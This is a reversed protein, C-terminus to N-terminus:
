QGKIEAFDFEYDEEEWEDDEFLNASPSIIKQKNLHLILDALTKACYVDLDEVMCAERSNKEPVFINVIKMKRAMLVVPLVGSVERIEGEM